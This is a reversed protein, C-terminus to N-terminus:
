ESIFRIWAQESGAPWSLLAVSSCSGCPRDASSCYLHHACPSFVSSPTLKAVEWAMMGLGKQNWNGDWSWWGPRTGWRAPFSGPAGWLLLAGYPQRYVREERPPGRQEEGPYGCRVGGAQAGGTCAGMRPVRKVHEGAQADMTPMSKWGPVWPICAGRGPVQQRCGGLAAWAEVLAIGCPEAVCIRCCFCFLLGWWGEMCLHWGRRAPKSGVLNWWRTLAAPAQCSCWAWLHAAQIFYFM